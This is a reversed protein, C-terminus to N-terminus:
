EKRIAKALDLWKRTEDDGPVGEDPEFKPIGKNNQAKFIEALSVADRKIEEETEGTLRTRLEIPIGAEVAANTRLQELEYGRIKSNAEALQDNLGKIKDATERASVEWSAKENKLSEISTKLDDYDAYGALKEEYAKSVTSRERELRSKIMADFEEQSNIPTFEAM